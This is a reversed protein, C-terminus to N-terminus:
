PVMPGRGMDEPNLPAARYGELVFTRRQPGNLWWVEVEVRNMALSGPAANPSREFLTVRARWGGMVGVVAPDFEGQLETGKPLEELLMLNDLTRKALLAARDYDTLRSANSMSTSLGSLLGVVAIAMITTAVLVELLTYGATRSTRRNSM